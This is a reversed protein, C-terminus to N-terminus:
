QAPPGKLIWIKHRELEKRVSLACYAIVDLDAWAEPSQTDARKEAFWSRVTAGAEGQRGAAREWARRLQAKYSGYDVTKVDQGWNCKVQRGQKKEKTRIM